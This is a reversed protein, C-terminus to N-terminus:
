DVNIIRKFFVGDKGFYVLIGLKLKTIKLYSLIQKAHKRNIQNGAKLELVIRNDVVFDIFYKGIDNNLFKIPIHQQEKFPIKEELLAVATAKQYCKEQLGPGLENFVRFCIGVIKYSLEPEILDKRKLRSKTYSLSIDSNTINTNIRQEYIM